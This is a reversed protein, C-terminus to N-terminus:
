TQQSEIHDAAARLRRVVSAASVVFGDFIVLQGNTGEDVSVLSIPVAKVGPKAARKTERVLEAHAEHLNDFM